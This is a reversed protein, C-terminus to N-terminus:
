YRPPPPGEPPMGQPPPPGDRRDNPHEGLVPRQKEGRKADKIIKEFKQKQAETCIARIARLNFFILKEREMQKIALKSLLSDVEPEEVEDKIILNHLQEKLEFEDKSISQMAQHHENNLIEFQAMQGKDFELAKVLFEAPGKNRSINNAKAKLPSKGLYNFLFFGNVAILFVLLVYLLTNKKM